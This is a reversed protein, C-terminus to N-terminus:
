LSPRSTDTHYHDKYTSSQHPVCIHLRLLTLSLFPNEVTSRQINENNSSFDFSSCLVPSPVQIKLRVSHIERTQYAYLATSM